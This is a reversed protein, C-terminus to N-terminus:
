DPPTPRTVVEYSAAVIPVYVVKGYEPHGLVLDHVAKEGSTVYPFLEGDFETCTKAHRTGDEDAEGWIRIVRINPPAKYGDPITGIIPDGM